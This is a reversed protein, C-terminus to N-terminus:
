RLLISRPMAGQAPIDAVTHTEISEGAQGRIGDRKRRYRPRGIRRCLTADESTPRLVPACIGLRPSSSRGRTFEGRGSPSALM